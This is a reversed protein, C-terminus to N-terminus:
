ETFFENLKNVIEKAKEPTLLNLDKNLCTILQKKGPTRTHVFAMQGLFSGACLLVPDITAKFSGGIFWRMAPILVAGIGCYMKQVKSFLLQKRQEIIEELSKKKKPDKPELFLYIVSLVEEASLKSENAFKSTSDFQINFLLESAQTERNM